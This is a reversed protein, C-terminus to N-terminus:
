EKPPEKKKKGGNLDDCAAPCGSCYANDPTNKAFTLSSPNLVTDLCYIAGGLNTAANATFDDADSRLRPSNVVYLGAGDNATNGDFDNADTRLNDSGDFYLGGGTMADNGFFRGREITIGNSLLSYLGGGSAAVNGEFTCKYLYTSEDATLYLGGGAGVGARGNATFIVRDLSHDIGGSLYAGGGDTADNGDFTTTGMTLGVGEDYLGGGSEASNGTFAADTIDALEGAVGEMMVAGGRETALNINFADQSSSWGDVHALAIAGGWLAQNGDFINGTTTIATSQTVHVAGGHGTAVNNTFTNGTLSVGDTGDIALAGGNGSATNGDFINEELTLNDAASATVAGGDTAAVASFTLGRLTVDPSSVVIAPGGLTATVVTKAAGNLSGIALPKDLTLSALDYTGAELCITQGDLAAGVATPLDGYDTPVRMDEDVGKGTCDETVGTCVIEPAGPYVSPNTDDCDTTDPVHDRPQECATRTSGLDGFGDGDADAFWVVADISDSGDADGSCDNDIEDFCVEDAGPHIAPDAEDCDGGTVIMGKVPDCSLVETADEGYGDGDTDVYYTTADIAEEPEDVLKDCDNDLDDCYEDAGPYVHDLTDDCDGAVEAYGKPMACESVMDKAVGYGDGDGDGYFTTGNVPDEDIIKDCDNDFGDCYEPAGPYIANTLDYCDTNDSVFGDPQSCARIGANPDGYGDSDLDPYWLDGDLPDDDVVDNCDNDAGDCVEPNGPYSEGNTDDCDGAITVYGSPQDCTTLPASDDGFGDDDVDAYFTAEGQAGEEDTAGDCNNDIGDCIETADPHIDPDGDDCDVDNGFGDDDEDLVVATDGTEVPVAPGTDKPDGNCGILILTTALTAAPGTGLARSLDSFLTM